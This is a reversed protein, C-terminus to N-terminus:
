YAVAITYYIYIRNNDIVRLGRPSVVKIVGRFAHSTIHLDNNFYRHHYYYYYIGVVLSKHATYNYNVFKDSDM